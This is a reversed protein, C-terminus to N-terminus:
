RKREISVAARVALIFILVSGFVFRRIDLMLDSSASFHCLLYRSQHGLLFDAFYLRWKM